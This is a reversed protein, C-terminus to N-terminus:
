DKYVPQRKLILSLIAGIVCSIALGFFFGKFQTAAGYTDQTEMHDIVKNIESAPANFRQMNEVMAKITLEKVTVALEPDIVNFLVINFGVVLASSIAATLFFTTFAGKFDIVDGLKKRAELIAVVFVVLAVAMLSLGLWWKVLLEINLAYAIIYFGIQIAALLLGYKIGTQKIIPNM